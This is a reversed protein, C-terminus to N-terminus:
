GVRPAPSVVTIFRLSVVSQILEAEVRNRSDDSRFLTAHLFATHPVDLINEAVDVLHGDFLKEFEITTKSTALSREM